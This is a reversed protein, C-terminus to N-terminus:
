LVFEYLYNPFTYEPPEFKWTIKKLKRRMPSIKKILHYASLKVGARRAIELAQTPTIWFVHDLNILMAGNAKKFRRFFKRSFPNPTSVLIKGDATLHRAAFSLLDVPNNVHEIVDGIYIVEFRENLDIESTADVCKVNFGRTKLEDVLPELIDIGLCYKASANIKGHKWTDREIYDVSHEAVGIDLVRKNHVQQEIFGMLDIDDHVRRAELLWDHVLSYADKNNPDDSIKTWDINTM